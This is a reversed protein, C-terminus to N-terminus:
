KKRGWTFSLILIGVGIIGILSSLTLVIANKAFGEPMNQTIINSLVAITPIGFGLMIVIQIFKDTFEFTEAM